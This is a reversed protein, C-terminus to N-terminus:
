VGKAKRYWKDCEESEKMLLDHLRHVEACLCEKTACIYHNDDIMVTDEIPEWRDCVDCNVLQSLKICGVLDGGKGEQNSGM